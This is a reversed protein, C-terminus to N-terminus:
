RRATRSRSVSLESYLGGGNKFSVNDRLVCGRLTLSGGRHFIGGGNYGIVYTDIITFGELITDALVRIGRGSHQADITTVSPGSESQLTVSRAIIACNKRGDEDIHVCDSYTGPAVLVTDGAAAADIGAQITPYESPVRLTAAHACAISLVGAVALAGLRMSAWRFLSM